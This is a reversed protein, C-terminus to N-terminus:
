PLYDKNREVIHFAIRYALAIISLSPNVGLSTPIISGDAIYLGDYVSNTSKGRFVRGLSDVVGDKADNGMPCGGLPHASIQTDWLPTILSDEGDKGIKQAFLRMGNLIQDYIPQQLNYDNDLDIRNEDTLFLKSTTNNDRGTGFLVLMNSVREEPTRDNSFINLLNSYINGLTSIVPINFGHILKALIHGTQPDNLNISNLVLESFLTIFSKNPRFPASPISEKQKRMTDFITAFVNAFMQPIGVDEISFAFKGNNNKFRAVSTQTPGKSADVNYRTPNIIGFFDGNTSFKTGLTDSLNLKKSKLLVKTSGLTGAAVIVQNAKIVKTLRTKEEEKLDKTPSFDDEDIINRYDVFKVIYRYGQGPPLEEIELVECLPHVDIPYELNNIATFIHKNLTHRAYPICGLGCRGQRECINREIAAAYKEIDEQNPRGARTDFVSTPIDTISLKANLNNLNIIESSGIQKAADQFVKTKPLLASGLGATTTINSVGIFKEALPFFKDLSDNGDHETPWDQYVDHEPKETVNFYVLSGGGVGTGALINVNKLRKVDYLGQIKNVARSNGITALMAKIDNPYAWTSFPMNNKLLFARMPDSDLVEPSIWWQGQELMCVKKNENKMKYMKAIALAVVTGGFGSGIVISDYESLVPLSSETVVIEIVNNLNSVIQSRWKQTNTGRVDKRKYRSHRDRISIFKKSEDTIIIYVNSNIEDIDKQPIIKFYGENNTVEPTSNPNLNRDDILPVDKFAEVPIGALPQGAANHIYGEIAVM